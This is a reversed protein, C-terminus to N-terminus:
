DTVTVTIDPHYAATGNIGDPTLFLALGHYTGAPVNDPIKLEVTDDSLVAVVELPLETFNEDLILSATLTGTLNIGRVNFTSGRKLSFPSGLTYLYPYTDTTIKANNRGSADSNYITHIGNTVRVDYTGDPVAKPIAFKITNTNIGLLLADYVKQDTVAIFSVKTKSIDALFWDGDVSMENGKSFNGDSFSFWPKPQRYDIYIKYQQKTGAESTVTYLTGNVFPVAVGSLPAITTKAPLIIEPRISDPVQKYSPWYVIISDHGITALLPTDASFEKIKFSQISTYGSVAITDGPLIHYKDVYEKQCASHVLLTATLLGSFIYWLRNTINNSKM